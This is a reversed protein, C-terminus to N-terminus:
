IIEVELRTLTRLHSKLAFHGVFSFFFTVLMGQKDAHDPVKM